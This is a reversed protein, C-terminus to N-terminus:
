ARGGLRASEKPVLCYISVFRRGVRTVESRMMESMGCVHIREPWHIDMWLFDSEISRSTIKM